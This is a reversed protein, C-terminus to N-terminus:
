KIRGERRALGILQEVANTRVILDADARLKKETCCIIDTERRSAVSACTELGSQGIAARTGFRACVQNAVCRGCKKQLPHKRLPAIM